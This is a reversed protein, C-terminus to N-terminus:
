AKNDKSLLHEQEQCKQKRATHWQRIVRMVPREFGYTVLSALAVSAICGVLMAVYVNVQVHPTYQPVVELGKGSCGALYYIIIWGTWLHLLYLSYSTDGMFTTVRNLLLWKRLFVVAPHLQEKPVWYCYVIFGFAAFGCGIIVFQQWAYQRNARATFSGGLVYCIVLLVLLLWHAFAFNYIRKWVSDNTAEQFSKSNDEIQDQELPSQSALGEKWLM